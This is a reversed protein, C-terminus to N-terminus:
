GGRSYFWIELGFGENRNFYVVYVM